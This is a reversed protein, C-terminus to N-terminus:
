EMPRPTLAPALTPPPSATPMPTPTAESQLSDPRAIYIIDYQSRGENYPKNIVENRYGLVATAGGDLNYAAKCGLEHFLTSLESLLMGKSYGAERGDVVVFCYHGPEYYGIAARPHRKEYTFGDFQELVMPMGSGDLLMPGFGWAQHVGQATDQIALWEESSYTKMEGSRYLVCVDVHPTDRYLVGNRIVVGKERAGYYDGSIAILAKNKKMLTTLPQRGGGYKDRAFATRFLDIHRIWIDAVFYTVGGEKKSRITVRVDDSQYTRKLGASTDEQPFTLSFDGEPLPTPTPAPTPAPKPTPAPTLTATPSAPSAMPSAPAADPLAPRAACGGLPLICCLVIPICSIYKRM